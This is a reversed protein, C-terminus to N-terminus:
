LRVTDDMGGTVAMRGAPHLSLTLAQHEQTPIVRQRKGTQSNFIELNHKNGLAIIQMSDASFFAERVRNEGLRLTQTLLYNIKDKSEENTTIEQDQAIAIEPTGLIM